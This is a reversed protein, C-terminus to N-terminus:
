RVNQEIGTLVIVYDPIPMVFRPDSPTLRITEGNLQRELVIGAGAQANLRKVDTWRIGRMLLEKRREAWIKDLLEEKTDVAINRYSGAKWRTKLLTNLTALGGEINGNAATAEAKILYVEDWALGAFLNRSGTYNGKFSVSGDANVEFFAEKRLDDAAYSEYLDRRIKCMPAYFTRDAPIGRYLLTERNLLEFPFSSQLNLENLNLLAPSSALAKDAFEEAAPYNGMALHIKALLSFAAARGPQIPYAQTLPLLSISAEVDRIAQQYSEELSARHTPQNIDATLRLPIGPLQDADSQYAMAFVQLINYFAYGRYFLAKGKINNFETEPQANVEMDGLGDLVVNCYFIQQYPNDWEPVAQSGEYIDAKWNYLNRTRASSLGNYDDDTIDYDAASVEASILYNSGFVTTTNNLLADFDQLTSPVVLQKDPKRELSDKRCAMFLLMCCFGVGAGITYISIKM